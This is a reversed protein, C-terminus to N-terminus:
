GGIAPKLVEIEIPDFSRSIYQRSKWIFGDYVDVWYMNSFDWNISKSSNYEQVLITKIKIGSITIERPGSIKFESIVPIGFLQNKDIDITRLSYRPFDPKHLQRNVPDSRRGYTNIINESFGATKVIRGNRTVIVANDASFWHLDAGQKKGLVLISKPGRGIKASITAYPIKNVTDRNIEEDDLGVVLYKVADVANEIVPSDACATLLGFLSTAMWASVLPPVGKPERTVLRLDFLTTKLISLLRVM